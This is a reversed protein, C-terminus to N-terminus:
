AETKSAASRTARLAQIMSWLLEANQSAHRKPSAAASRGIADPVMQEAAAKVERFDSEMFQDGTIHAAHAMLVAVLGSLMDLQEALLRTANRPDHLLIAMTKREQQAPAEPMTCISAHPGRITIVNADV